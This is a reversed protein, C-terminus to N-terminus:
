ESVLGIDFEFTRDNDDLLQRVRERAHARSEAVVVLGDAQADGSAQYVELGDREFETAYTQLVTLVRQQVTGLDIDGEEFAALSEEINRLASIRDM